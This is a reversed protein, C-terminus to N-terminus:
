AITTRDITSRLAKVREPGRLNALAGDMTARRRGDNACARYAMWAVDSCECRRAVGLVCAALWTAPGRPRMTEGQCAVCLRTPHGQEINYTTRHEGLPRLHTGGCDVKAARCPIILIYVFSFVKRVACEVPGVTRVVLVARVCHASGRVVEHARSSAQRWVHAM